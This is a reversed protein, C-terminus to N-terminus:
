EKYKYNEFKKNKSLVRWRITVMPVGLIKSADGASRYEVNDIIIPKNQEGNYTGKRINSLHIKTEKTHKKNYFPNNKDKRDRCESCTKNIPTIEKGCKCYNKSTGGKWNPNLEMPKSFKIKKEDDSMSDFIEQLSIKMREIIEFRKPNNTLNDGGSSKKGINYEPNLDLYKQEVNLLNIIECEEVIEFLFNDEGYKNWARQLLINIHKNKNLENIHRLWRKEINKSSGYYCKGDVKNIIKYIGIM